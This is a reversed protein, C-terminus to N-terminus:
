YFNNTVPTTFLLRDLYPSMKGSLALQRTRIYFSRANEVSRKETVIDDALNLALYNMDESDSRASLEARVTDVRLRPDFRMIDAIKDEPVYYSVTQRLYDKNRTLRHRTGPDRFVETAQWPRNYYWALSRSSIQDPKGYKELM